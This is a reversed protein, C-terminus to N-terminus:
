LAVVIIVRSTRYVEGGISAYFVKPPIIIYFYIMGMIDCQFIYVYFNLKRTKTPM